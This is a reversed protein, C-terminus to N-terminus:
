PEIQSVAPTTLVSASGGPGRLAVAQVAASAFPANLPVTLIRRATGMGDAAVSGLYHIPGLIDLCASGACPGAGLGATSLVFHVSEAPFAGTVEFIAQAGRQLRPMQLELGPMLDPRRRWVGGVDVRPDGCVFGSEPSFFKADTFSALGSGPVVDRTWTQGGNSTRAVFRGYGTVWAHNADLASVGLLNTTGLVSGGGVSTWNAGGDVTRRVEGFYGVAWGIQADVMDVAELGYQSGAQLTWTLGADRTVHIGGGVIWGNQADAFDIGRNLGLNTNIEQWSQGGNATRVLLPVGNGFNGAAVATQADAAAVCQMFVFPRSYEVTWTLGGDATGAIKGVDTFTGTTWGRQLNAFSVDAAYGYRDLGQVEVNTWQAGGNTTRAVMGRDLSAWGHQADAFSLAYANMAGSSRAVWHAGGDGTSYIRGQEGVAYGTRGDAFAVSELMHDRERPKQLTNSQWGDATMVIESAAGVGWARDRDLFHAHNLRTGAAPPPLASWHAGGDLTHLISSYGLAWGEAADAFWLTFFSASPNEHQLTWTAGGDSSHHIQGDLNAAWGRNADAFFVARATSPNGLASWSWNRGGDTTRYVIGGNGVAWGLMPTLFNLEYVSGVLSPSAQWSAGGNATWFIRGDGAVCGNLPDAFAIAWLGAVGPLEQKSWTMGGDTSHLVQAAEAAAWIDTPSLLWVDHVDLGTPLPGQQTWNQAPLCSVLALLLSCM